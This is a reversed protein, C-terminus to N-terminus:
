LSTSLVTTNKRTLTEALGVHELNSPGGDAELKLRQPEGLPTAFPNTAASLTGSPGLCGAGM